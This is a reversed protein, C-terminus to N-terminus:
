LQAKRNTSQNAHNCHTAKSANPERNAASESAAVLRTAPLEGAGPLEQIVQGHGIWVASVGAQLARFGNELKPLMGGQIVGAQKLSQFQSYSLQPLLTSPDAPDELVGAKDVAFFLTTTFRGNLATAVATAITDANTNLLSGHGDHTLPALVPTIGAELLHILFQTQVAEIDGVFGYDIPHAPRRQARIIDGDAGTLGVAPCGLAVLRAVLQRNILGGYVMTVVELMPADTIRRGDIMRPVHGLKRALASAQKGGGHILIKNGPLQVFHTLFAELLPPQDLLEGGIKLVWLSAKSERHTSKM